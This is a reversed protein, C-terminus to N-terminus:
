TVVPTLGPNSSYPRLAEKGPDTNALVSMSRMNYSAVAVQKGYKLLAKFWCAFVLYAQTWPIHAISFLSEGHLLTL